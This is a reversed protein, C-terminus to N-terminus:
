FTSLDIQEQLINEFADEVAIDIQSEKTKFTALRGEFSGIV